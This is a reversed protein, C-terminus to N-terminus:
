VLRKELDDLTTRVADLGHARLAELDGDAQACILTFTVVSPRTRHVGCGLPDGARGEANAIVEPQGGEMTAAGVSNTTLDIGAAKAM